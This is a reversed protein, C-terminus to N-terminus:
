EWVFSHRSDKLKGDVLLDIKWSLIDGNRLRDPGAFFFEAKRDFAPKRPAPFDVSRSLVKGATRAQTYYMVLRVHSQPDADDWRVHYYDGLRKRRESETNAGYLLYRANARLPVASWSESPLKTTKLPLDAVGTICTRSPSCSVLAALIVSATIFRQLM